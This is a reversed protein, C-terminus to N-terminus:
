LGALGVPRGLGVPFLIGACDPFGACFPGFVMVILGLQVVYRIAAVAPVEYRVLLQKTVTDLCAFALTACLVLAIAM